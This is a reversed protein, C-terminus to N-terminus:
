STVSKEGKNLSCLKLNLGYIQSSNEVDSYTDKVVDRVDKKKLIFVYIAKCYEIVDFLDVLFYHRFKNIELVQLKPQLNLFIM